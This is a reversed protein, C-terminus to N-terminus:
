FYRTSRTDTAVHKLLRCRCADACEIPSAEHVRLLHNETKEDDQRQRQIKTEEDTLDLIRVVM